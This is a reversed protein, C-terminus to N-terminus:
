FILDEILVDVKKDDELRVKVMDVHKGDKSSAVSCITAKASPYKEHSDSITVERGIKINRNPNWDSVQGSVSHQRYNKLYKFHNNSLEKMKEKKNKKQSWNLIKM